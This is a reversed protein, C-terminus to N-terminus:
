AVGFTAFALPYARPPRRALPISSHVNSRFPLSVRHCRRRRQAAHVLSRGVVVLTTVFPLPLYRWYWVYRSDNRAIVSLVQAQPGCRSFAADAHIAPYCRFSWWKPIPSFLSAAPPHHRVNLTVPAGRQREGFIL